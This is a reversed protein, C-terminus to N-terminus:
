LSRGGRHQPKAPTSYFQDSDPSGGCWMRRETHPLLEGLSWCKQREATEGTVTLKLESSGWQARGTQGEEAEALMPFQPVACGCDLPTAFGRGPSRPQAQTAAGGGCKEGCAGEAHLESAPGGDGLPALVGRGPSSSQWPLKRASPLLTVTAPAPLLSASGRAFM